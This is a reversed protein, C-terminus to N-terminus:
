YIMQFTRDFFDKQVDIKEGSPFRIKGIENIDIGDFGQLIKKYRNNPYLENLYFLTYYMSNILNYKKAIKIMQEFVNENNVRFTNEIDVIKYLEIDRNDEYWISNTAERYYHSCLHLCHLPWILGQTSYGNASYETIGEELIAETIDNEKCDFHINVDIEIQKMFWHDCKKYYPLLDHYNMVQILKEKRSAETKGGDASQYFGMSKMVKDFKKYEKECLLVDIDNSIRMNLCYISTNHIIGKLGACPIKENNLRQFLDESLKLNIINSQEYINCLMKFAKITKKPIKNKIMDKMGIMFYGNLRHRLLAGVIWGWDNKEEMLKILEENEVDTRRQVSGLLVIKEENNLKRNM